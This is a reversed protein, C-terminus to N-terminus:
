VDFHLFESFRQVNYLASYSTSVLYAEAGPAKRFQVLAHAGLLILFTLWSLLIAHTARSRTWEFKVRFEVRDISRSQDPRGALCVYVCHLATDSSVCSYTLGNGLSALGFTM